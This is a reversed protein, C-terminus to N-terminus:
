QLRRAALRRCGGCWAVKSSSNGLGTKGIIILNEHRTIWDRAGLKAFLSKALSHRLISAISGLHDRRAARVLKPTVDSAAGFAADDLTVLYEKVARSAPEPDRNKDWDKGPISRQKNAGGLSSCCGAM